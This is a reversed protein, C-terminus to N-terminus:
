CRNFLPWGLCPTPCNLFCAPPPTSNYPGGPHPLVIIARATAVSHWASNMDIPIASTSLMHIPSLSRLRLAAAVPLALQEWAIRIPASMTPVLSKSLKLNGPTVRAFDAPLPENGVFTTFKDQPDIQPLRTVLEYTYRSLGAQRYNGGFSLLHANIGIRM